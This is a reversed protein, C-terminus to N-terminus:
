ANSKVLCDALSAELYKHSKEKLSCLRSNVQAYDISPWVATTEEDVLLDILSIQRLLSLVRSNENKADDRSFRLFPIFQREFILSFVIGHYSDTMVMESNRVLYMFERPDLRSHHIDAWEGDTSDETYAIIRLGARKALEVIDHRYKRSKGILYCFVYRHPTNLPRELARWEESELLFSPDLVHLVERDLLNSLYLSANDERVSLHSYDSLLKKYRAKLEDPISETGVSTAYSIKPKDDAVFSLMFVPNFRKPSWIQDSGSVYVDFSSSYPALEEEYFAVKTQRYLQRQFSRAGYHLRPPLLRPHSDAVYSLLDKAKAVILNERQYPKRYNIFSARYGLREIASFLGYAQLNSGVNLLCHWTVIGVSPFSTGLNAEKDSMM